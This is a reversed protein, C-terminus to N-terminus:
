WSCISITLNFFEVMTPVRPLGVRCRLRKQEVRDHCKRPRLINKERKRKDNLMRGKNEPAIGCCSSQSGGGILFANMRM